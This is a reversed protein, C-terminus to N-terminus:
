IGLWSFLVAANDGPFSNASFDRIRHGPFLETLRIAGSLVATPSQRHYELGWQILLKGIVTALGVFITLALLQSMRYLFDRRKGFFLYYLYFLNMSIAIFFKATHTNLLFWMKNWWSIDGSLSGNLYEFVAIDIGDWIERTAPLLWSGILFIAASLLIFFIYRHKM